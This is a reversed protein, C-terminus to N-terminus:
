IELMKQYESAEYDDDSEDYLPFKEITSHSVEKDDHYLCYDVDICGIFNEKNDYCSYVAYGESDSYLLFEPSQKEARFAYAETGFRSAYDAVVNQFNNSYCDEFAETSFVEYFFSTREPKRFMVVILNKPLRSM